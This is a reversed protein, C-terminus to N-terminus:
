GHTVLGLLRCSFRISNWYWIRETCKCLGGYINTDELGNSHSAGFITYVIIISQGSQTPVGTRCHPIYRISASSYHGRSKLLGLINVSWSASSVSYYHGMCTYCRAYSYLTYHPLLQMLTWLEYLWPLGCPKLLTLVCLSCCLTWKQELWFLGHHISGMSWSSRACDPCQM